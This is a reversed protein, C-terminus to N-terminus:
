KAMRLRLLEAFSEVRTRLQPASYARTDYISSDMLLMPIDKKKQIFEKLM